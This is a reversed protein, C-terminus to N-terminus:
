DKLDDIAATVKREDKSTQIVTVLERVHEVPNAPPTKRGFIGAQANLAFGALLLPVLLLNWTRMAFAEARSKPGLERVPTEGPWRQSGKRSFKRSPGPLVPLGLEFLRLLAPAM